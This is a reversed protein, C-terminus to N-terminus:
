IILGETNTTSELFISWSAFIGGSVKFPSPSRPRKPMCIGSSYPSYIILFFWGIVQSLITQIERLTDTIDKTYKQPQGTLLCTHAGPTDTPHQASEQSLSVQTPYSCKCPTREGQCLMKRKTWNKTTTSYSSTRHSKCYWSIIELIVGPVSLLTEHFLDTLATM